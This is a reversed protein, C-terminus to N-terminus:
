SINLPVAIDILFTELCLEEGREFFYDGAHVFDLGKAIDAYKEEYHHSICGKDGNYEVLEIKACSIDLQRATQYVTHEIQSAPMTTPVACGDDPKFLAIKHSEKNILWLKGLHVGETERPEIIWEQSINKYLSM